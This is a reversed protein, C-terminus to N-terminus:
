QKGKPAGSIASGAGSGKSQGQAAADPEVLAVRTGAEIGKIAVEDPNRALIEVEHPKWDGKEQVFVTPRGQRPFVAAAPVSIANPIKEVVIDMRGNMGPRLRKDPVNFTAQAKFNRQPPWEGWSQEVMPSIGSVKGEFPKEPFPDILIRADQGVVVRGRDIEELKVKIQLTALDPLEAIGSGAWIQDGVKFPKANMWGQSYNSMYTIVGNSPAKLEMNALRKNTIDIDAQAKDRQRTISAIKSADSKQHLEVAAQAVRLKEEAMGLDIRSQEGQLKSVIEQKSAELKAREVEVRAANLDLRDQEATIRAQANAQELTAEAQKLGAEKERLQARAASSDFRVVVDGQAIESNAPAQWVIQLGPVNFPATLQVSRLAVLEGRCRVIVQFDGRRAEASPLDSKAQVQRTRYLWVGTGGLIGAVLLFTVISRLRKM